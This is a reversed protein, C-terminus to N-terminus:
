DMSENLAGPQVANTSFDLGINIFPVHPANLTTGYAAPWLIKPANETGNYKKCFELEEEGPSVGEPHYGCSEYFRQHRLSVQGSYIYVGSGRELDWFSIDNYALYSAKMTGGLYGLRIMGVESYESLIKVYSDVSFPKNLIWDDELMLVYPSKKFAENLAINKSKGVGARESDTVVFNQEKSELYNITGKLHEQQKPSGDDAVIWFLEPYILNQQLYWVTSYLLNTRSGEGADFTTIIISLPETM